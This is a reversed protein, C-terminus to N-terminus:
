FDNPCSKEHGDFILKKRSLRKSDGFCSGKLGINQSLTGINNQLPDDIKKM